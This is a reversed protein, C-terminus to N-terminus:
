HETGIHGTRLPKKKSNEELNIQQIWGMGAQTEGTPAGVCLALFFRLMMSNSCDSSMAGLQNFATLPLSLTQCWLSHNSQNKGSDLSLQVLPHVVGWLFAKGENECLYHGGESNCAQPRWRGLPSTKQNVWLCLTAQLTGPM